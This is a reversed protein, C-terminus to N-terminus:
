DNAQVERCKVKDVVSQWDLLRVYLCESAIILAAGSGFGIWVGDIGLAPAGLELWIALPVAELYNISVAFYAAASQKGLGRLLGNTGCQSSDFISFLAALWM